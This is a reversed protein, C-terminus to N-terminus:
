EFVTVTKVKPERPFDPYWFKIASSGILIM